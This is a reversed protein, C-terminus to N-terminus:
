RVQSECNICDNRVAGAAAWMVGCPLRRYRVMCRANNRPVPWHRQLGPRRLLIAGRRIGPPWDQRELQALVAVM